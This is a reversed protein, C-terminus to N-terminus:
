SFKWVETSYIILARSVTSGGTSDLPVVHVVAGMYSAECCPQLLALALGWVLVMLVMEAREM